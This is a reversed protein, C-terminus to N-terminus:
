LNSLVFILKETDEEENPKEKKMDIDCEKMGKKLIGAWNVEIAKGLSLEVAEQLKQFFPTRGKGASWKQLWKFGVLWSM